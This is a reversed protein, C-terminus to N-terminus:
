KKKTKELKLSKYKKFAIQGLRKQKMSEIGSMIEGFIDRKKKM